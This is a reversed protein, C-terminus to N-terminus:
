WTIEVFIELKIQIGVISKNKVVGWEKFLNLLFHPKILIITEKYGKQSQALFECLQRSRQPLSNCISAKHLIRVM